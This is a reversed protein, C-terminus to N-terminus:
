ERGAVQRVAEQIRELTQVDAGISDYLESVRGSLALLPEEILGIREAGTRAVDSIAPIGAEAAFRLGELLGGLNEGVDELPTAVKGLDAQVQAMAPTAVISASSLVELTRRSPDTRFTRIAEAVVPLDGLGDLSNQLETLGRLAEELQQIIRAGDVTAVSLLTLLIQWGNGILPVKAQRLGAILDLAPRAQDVIRISEGLPGVIRAYEELRGELDGAEDLEGRAFSIAEEWSHV